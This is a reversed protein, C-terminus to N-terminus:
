SKSLITDRIFDIVCEIRTAFSVSDNAYYEIAIGGLFTNEAKMTCPTLWLGGGSIGKPHPSNDTDGVANKGLKDYQQALHINENKNYRSSLNLSIQRPEAAYTFSYPTFKPM